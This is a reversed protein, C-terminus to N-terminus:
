PRYVNEREFSVRRWWSALMTAAVSRLWRLVVLNRREVFGRFVSQVKVVSTISAEFHKRVLFRRTEAQLSVAAASKVRFRVKLLEQLLLFGSRMKAYARQCALRRQVTQFAKVGRVFRNYERLAKEMRSERQLMIAANVKKDFHGKWIQQLAVFGRCQTTYRSRFSYGRWTKQQYIAGRRQQCFQTKASHMRWNRELIIAATMKQMFHHKAYEQVKSFGIRMKQYSSQARFRRWESQIVTALMNTKRDFWLKFAKQFVVFGRLQKEYTARAVIGRQRSQVLITGSRLKNFARWKSTMRQHKQLLLVSTTKTQHQQRAFNQFSIFGNYMKTYKAKLIYRRIHRQITVSSETKRKWDYNRRAITQLALFGRAMKQFRSSCANRRFTTQLSFISKRTKSFTSRAQICRWQKQILISAYLRQQQRKWVRYKRQITTTAETRNQFQKKALRQLISLGHDRKEIKKRYEPQNSYRFWEMQFGLFGRHMAVYGIRVFMARVFQQIVLTSRIRRALQRSQARRAVAQIKTAKEAKRTAQRKMWLRWSSQIHRASLLFLKLKSKIETRESVKSAALTLRLSRLIVQRMKRTRYWRQVKSVHSGIETSDKGCLTDFHEVSQLCSSIALPFSPFVDNDFFYFSSGVPAQNSDHGMQVLALDM